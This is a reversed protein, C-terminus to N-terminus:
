AFPTSRAPSGRRSRAPPSGGPRSASRWTAPWRATRSSPTTSFVTNVPRQHPPLGAVDRGSILLRGADPEEFGALLRLLTTKGCSSPGLLTLFEGPRVELSVRDLTVVDGYTKRVSDISVAGRMRPIGAITSASGNALRRREEARTTPELDATKQM